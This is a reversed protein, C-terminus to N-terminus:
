RGFVIEVMPSEDILRQRQSQTSYWGTLESDFAKSRTGVERVPAAIAPLDHGAVHIIVNPDSNVNAYWDRAGPTGTNIFRGAIHFWWIEIRRPQGSRRGITTLHITRHRALEADSPRHIAM